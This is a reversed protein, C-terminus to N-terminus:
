IEASASNKMLVYYLVFSIIFGTFWSLSYLFNVAPIWYGILALIVGVALSALAKLNFGNSYSYAGNEKYLESLQLEKKRIVFYDCLLIGLVPGLLGSIFILIGSIENLLWWPCIVIGIIATTIGGGRFSLKKPFLNSFANAPAIVNAAINTSLTAIIMFLQSVIVVVPSEFKALFSVPDWPADDSILIDQFNIAAAFTVFVGVFSYLIMTGPLGLFQGRVQDKQSSAYRTIDAISLSMTAWFGVMATLWILYSWVKDGFNSQESQLVIPVVSSRINRTGERKFEIQLNNPGVEKEFIQSLDKSINQENVPVWGSSISQDSTHSLQYHSAKFNGEKDRLPNLVLTSGENNTTISATTQELQQGKELVTFFGGAEYSGWGILAVGILVLIPASFAELWKISETGHWIFYMNIVWFIGFGAFKGFVLDASGPSGTIANWIAYFALGGIWTQVGFWGCAVVARVVSAIHIGKTGFSARGLVPFPIGYKVGAHGNLIMPVTIILNALGIIILAVYWSVGSKIMYSALIYTPICVAMGVWIAALDMTTWSRKEKPVPALDDSYLPSSSVDEELAVIEEQM